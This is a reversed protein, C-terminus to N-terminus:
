WWHLFTDNIIGAISATVHCISVDCFPQLVFPYVFLLLGLVPRASLRRCLKEVQFGFYQDGMGILAMSVILYYSVIAFMWRGFDVKLLLNPLITLSGVSFALYKLKDTRGAAEKVLRRMFGIGIVLYPVVLVLFIPFQVANQLHYPVERGTLDIGLIEKDIVDTHIIKGDSSMALARSVVEEYAAEGNVHSFLEFWLFLASAVLFTTVLMGIYKRKEKGSSDCCKCFLLVLIINFFMFVYGQHVMTAVAAIPIVLWEAHGKMLLIAGLISLMLMYLDLRGFNYKTVFFPAAFMLYFLILAQMKKYHSEEVKNLCIAFFGFLAMFFMTTVIKTFWMVATYNEMDIPLIRDIMEYVSGILGRSIFGYKYSFALMTSNIANVQNGWFRIGLVIMFAVGALLFIRNTKKRELNM